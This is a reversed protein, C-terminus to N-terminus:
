IMQIVAFYTGLKHSITERHCEYTPHLHQKDHDLIRQILFSERHVEWLVVSHFKWNPNLESKVADIEFSIYVEHQM